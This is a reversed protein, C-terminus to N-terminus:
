GADDPVTLPVRLRIVSALELGTITANFAVAADETVETVIEGAAGDAVILLVMEKLAVTCPEVMFVATVQFAARPVTV